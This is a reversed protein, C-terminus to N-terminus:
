ASSGYAIPVSITQSKTFAGGIQPRRWVTLTSTHVVFADMTGNPELVVSQTAAPLSAVRQWASTPGYSILAELNTGTRVLVFEANGPGTGTATVEANAALVIPPSLV